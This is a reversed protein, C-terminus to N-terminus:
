VLKVGEVKSLYNINNVIQRTLLKGDIYLNVPGSTDDSRSNVETMADIVGRKIGEIIQENNAVATKGNAFKGVLEGHNAMFLGDEPFGGTALHPIQPIWVYPLGSFPRMGMFSWNRLTSLLSQVKSLPTYIVNNIGDIMRNLWGKLASKIGDTISKFGEGGKSFMGKIKDWMEKLKNKVSEAFDRVKQKGNEIMESLKTKINEKIEAVRTTIREFLDKGWEKIKELGDKINKKIEEWHEVVYSVVLIILGIVVGIWNGFLLSLGAITEGIGRLLLSATELSWGEENIKKIAEVIDSIGKFTMFVGAIKTILSDPFFSMIVAAIAVFINLIEKAHEQIWLLWKANQDIGALPDSFGVGGGGGGGGSDSSLNNLEDFGALQKMQKVAAGASKAVGGMKIGAFGLGKLFANAISLLYGFLKIVYELVPAFLSGLAYYCGNLKAKLSDNQSLYYNMGQRIVGLTRDLLKM